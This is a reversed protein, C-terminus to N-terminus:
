VQCLGRCDPWCLPAIPEPLSIADRVPEELHLEHHEDLRLSEPEGSTDVPLGSELDISPLAEEQLTVHVPASVAILCRSCEERLSTDLNASALISRRTRSLRVEGQIPSALHLEEGLPLGEVDVQYTRTTGPAARLLGAVNYSLM